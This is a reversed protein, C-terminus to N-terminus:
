SFQFFIRFFICKFWYKISRINGRILKRAFKFKIVKWGSEDIEFAFYQIKVSQQRKEETINTFKLVFVVNWFLKGILSVVEKSEVNVFILWSITKLFHSFIDYSILLSEM